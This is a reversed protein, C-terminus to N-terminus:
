RAAPVASAVPLTVDAVVPYHDSALRTRADIIVRTARVDISRSVLVYDIRHRPADEPDAPSTFGDAVGDTNRTRAKRWADDFRAMLPQLETATPQANFDGVMVTLRDAASAITGIAMAISPTQLLRDTETTHLHTNAFELPVGNVDITSQTFGRQENAGSRPLLTTRCSRISFRSLILTGYQHPRDAHNDAPHDLNAAYCRHAMDLGASLVAPEDQYGSRAWFRDVEQLGVIDPRHERIVAIAAQLDLNCDPSPPQGPTVAPQTCPANTQGHKINYTMVRLDGARAPGQPSLGLGVAILAVLATTTAPVGPMM